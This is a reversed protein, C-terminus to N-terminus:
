KNIDLFHGSLWFFISIIELINPVAKLTWQMPGFFSIKDPIILIYLLSHHYMGSQMQPSTLITTVHGIEWFPLLVFTTTRGQLKRWISSNYELTSGNYLYPTEKWSKANKEIFVVGFSISKVQPHPGTSRMAHILGETSGSYDKVTQWHWNGKLPIIM